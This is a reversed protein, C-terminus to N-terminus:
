LLLGDHGDDAGDGAQGAVVDAAEFPAAILYQRNFCAVQVLAFEGLDDPSVLFALLAAPASGRRGRWPGGTGPGSRTNDNARQIAESSGMAVAIDARLSTDRAELRGQFAEM